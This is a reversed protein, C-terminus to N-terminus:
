KWSPPNFTKRHTNIAEEIDAAFNPDMTPKFGMEKAHAKALAISESITRRVAEAPHIVAVPREGSEIIVETGARVRTMLRAFDNAAEAESIHIVNKPMADNYM